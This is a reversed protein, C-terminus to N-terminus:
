IKENGAILSGLHKFPVGVAFFFRKVGHREPPHLSPAPTPLRPSDIAAPTISSPPDITLATEVRRRQVPRSPMVFPRRPGMLGVAAFTARAAHPRSETRAPAVQDEMVPAIDEPSAAAVEIGGDGGVPMPLLSFQFQPQSHFPPAVQLIGALLVLSAVGALLRGALPSVPSDPSFPHCDPTTVPKALARQLSYLCAESANLRARCHACIACHRDLRALETGHLRGIAYAEFLHEPLCEVGPPLGFGAESLSRSFKLRLRRFSPARLRLIILM